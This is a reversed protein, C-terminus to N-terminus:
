GSRRDGVLVGRSLRRLQIQFKFLVFTGRPLFKRVRVVVKVNGGPTPSAAGDQRAIPVIVGERSRLSPSSASSVMPVSSPMSSVSSATTSGSVAFTASSSTTSSHSVAGTSHNIQHYFRSDLAMERSNDRLLQVCYALIQRQRHVNYNYM